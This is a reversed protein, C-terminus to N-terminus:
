PPIIVAGPRPTPHAFAASADHEGHRRGATGMMADTFDAGPLKAADLIAGYLM